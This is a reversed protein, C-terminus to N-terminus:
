NTSEEGTGSDKISVLRDDKIEGDESIELTFKEAGNGCSYIATFSVNGNADSIVDGIILESGVAISPLVAEKPMPGFDFEQDNILFISDKKGFKTPESRVQPTFTINFKM